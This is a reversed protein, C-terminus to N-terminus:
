TAYGVTVAPNSGNGQVTIGNACPMHFEFISGAPSNAPIVGVITGTHGSANDFITMQNTGSTTVLVRCLIAAANIVTTDGATGAAIASTTNGGLSMVQVEATGGAFTSIVTATPVTALSATQTTVNNAM